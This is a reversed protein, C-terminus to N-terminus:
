RPPVGAAILAGNMAGASTGSVIDPPHGLGRPDSLLVDYVGVQVAGRAGGGSLVLATPRAPDHALPSPPAAAVSASECPLAPHAWPEGRERGLARGM